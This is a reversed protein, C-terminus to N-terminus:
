NNYVSTSLSTNEDQNNKYELHKLQQLSQALYKFFELTYPSQCM